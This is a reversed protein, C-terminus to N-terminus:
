KGPEAQVASDKDLAFIRVAVEVAAGYRSGVNKAAAHRRGLDSPLHIIGNLTLWKLSIALLCGSFTDVLGGYRSLGKDRILAALLERDL